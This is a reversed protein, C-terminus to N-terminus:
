KASDVKQQTARHALLSTAGLNDLPDSFYKGYGHSCGLALMNQALVPTDIGEAIVEIGLARAWQSVTRVADQGRQDLEVRAVLSRDLRVARIAFHRLYTLSSYTALLDDLHLQLVVGPRPLLDNLHQAHDVFSSEPLELRLANGTLNHTRLLQNVHDFFGPHEVQRLAIALTVPIPISSAFCSQWYSVRTCIEEIQWQAIAVILNTDEVAHPYFPIPILGEGPHDWCLSATLSSLQSDALSIVPQYYLRLEGRELAQRLEHDRRDPPNANFVCYRAKGQNKARYMAIDADRLLDDAKQYASSGIAIGISTSTFVERQGLFFPASLMKQVREAVRVAVESDHMDDVLITFEDGGLRAVTDQPRLCGRLRQAVQNLLDDGMQHGLSDNIIKFHDLDLFLVGFSYDSRRRARHLTNQLRDLLLFRNPLGTLPDHFARHRLRQEALIRDTIDVAWGIYGVSDGSPTLRPTGQNLVWRYQGSSHRLRHEHSWPKRTQLGGDFVERLNAQDEPHVLHLWSETLEEAMARGTFELWSQNVFTMAGDPNSMWMMLPACDAILTFRRESERLSEQIRQQERVYHIARQLLPGNLSLKDLVDAAGAAYASKELEKTLGDVLFIVPSQCDNGRALRLFEFGSNNDPDHDVLCIDHRLHDLHTLGASFGQEWDLAYRSGRLDGLLDHVRHYDRDRSGVFLVHIPRGAM